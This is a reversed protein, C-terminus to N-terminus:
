PSPGVEFPDGSVRNLVYVEKLLFETTFYSEDANQDVKDAKWPSSYKRISVHPVYDWKQGNQRRRTKHGLLDTCQPFVVLIEKVLNQIATEDSARLCLTADKKHELVSLNDLKLQFPEVKPLAKRLLEIAEPYFGPM